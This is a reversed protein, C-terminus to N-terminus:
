RRWGSNTVGPPMLSGGGSSPDDVWRLAVLGDHERREVGPPVSAAAIAKAQELRAVDVAEVPEFTPDVVDVIIAAVPRDAHRPPRVRPYVLPVAAFPEAYATVLAAQGRWRDRLVILADIM